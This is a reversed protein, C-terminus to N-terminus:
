IGRCPPSGVGCGPPVWTGRVKWNGIDQLDTVVQKPVFGYELEQCQHLLHAAREAKTNCGCHSHSHTARCAGKKPRTRM